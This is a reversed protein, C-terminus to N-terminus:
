YRILKGVLLMGSNSYKGVLGCATPISGMEIKCKPCLPSFDANFKHYQSPSIHARHLIKLQIAKVRNCFSLTKISMRAEKWDGDTIDVNLEREWIEKLRCTNTNDYGKLICYFTRISTGLQLRFLQRESSSTNQDTLIRTDRKIYNRVQLYHFFDQKLINYKNTLQSFSM